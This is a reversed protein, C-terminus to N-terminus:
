CRECNLLGVAWESRAVAHGCHGAVFGPRSVEGSLFPVPNDAHVQKGADTLVWPFQRAGTWRVVTVAAGERIWGAARMEKCAATVKRGDSTRSQTGVRYVDGIAVERLLAARTPTPHLKYM